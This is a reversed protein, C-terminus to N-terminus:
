DPKVSHGLWETSTYPNACENTNGNANCNSNIDAYVDTYVYAVPKSWL